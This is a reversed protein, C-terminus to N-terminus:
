GRHVTRNPAAFTHGDPLDRGAARGNLKAAAPSERVDAADYGADEFADLIARKARLSHKQHYDEALHFRSLQEIRTEIGDRGLGRADLYGEVTEAQEPTSVFLINQYQVNSSQRNLDHSRVALDLLDRYSRETPDYDVQFAETHEGLDHYTPDVKSGGAYGVRTRIVGDLAGFRGDPGWFCGLAFTATETEERTPAQQDYQKITTPTPSM